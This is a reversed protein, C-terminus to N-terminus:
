RKHKDIFLTNKDDTYIETQATTNQAANNKYIYLVNIYQEIDDGVLGYLDYIVARSSYKFVSRFTNDIKKSYADNFTPSAILNAVLSGDKALHDKVQQFYEKTVLHEPVSEGGIFTDLFIIDFLKDTGYLFARAPESIFQKNDGIPEKLIYEEAINKLDRDIDVYTYYNYKDNHGFTFGGAGIVLIEKPKQKEQEKESQRLYQNSLTPAITIKELFKIYDHSKGNDNYMSSHNGNLLLHRNGNEKEIVVATNYENNNVINLSSMTANANITLALLAIIISTVTSKSIKRKNLVIILISLLIFNLSATHHVGLSAMLVLTSFVAGLFSGLTSFCLMLGTIKALKEKSFYNSILPITQGLLYIPPAIFIATFVATKILRSHIGMLDFLSFIQIIGTLSLAPLLFFSSILINKILKKRIGFSRGRWSKQRFRGGMHYGFALPMLVAAIIISVTDTGSGIFPITQRITLLETSLVIYGEIIIISFLLLTHNLRKM